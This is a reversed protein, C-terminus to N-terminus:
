TVFYLSEDLSRNPNSFIIIILFIYFIGKSAFKPSLLTDISPMSVRKSGMTSQPLNLSTISEIVVKRKLKPSHDENYLISKQNISSKNNYNYVIQNTNPNDTSNNTISTNSQETIRKRIGNEIIYLEDSKNHLENSSHATEDEKFYQTKVISPLSKRRSLSKERIFDNAHGDSINTPIPTNQKPQQPPQRRNAENNTGPLSNTHISSGIGSEQNSSANSYQNKPGKPQQNPNAFDEVSNDVVRQSRKLTNRKPNNRQFNTDEFSNQNSFQGNSHISTPDIQYMQNQLDDYTLNPIMNEYNYNAYNPM